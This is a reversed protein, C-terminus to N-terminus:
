ISIDNTKLALSFSYASGITSKEINNIPKSYVFETEVTLSSRFFHSELKALFGKRNNHGYTESNYYAVSTDSQNAFVEGTLKIEMTEKYNHYLSSYLRFGENYTDPAKLNHIFEMGASIAWLDSLVKQFSLNNHLGFFSHKFFSDHGLGSITNGYIRSRNAIDPPLNYYHFVTLTEKIDINFFRDSDLFVSSTFFLPAEQLQLIRDVKETFNSAVATQFLFKLDFGYFSGAHWEGIISPFTKNNTILFPALLFNQEIIGHLFFLNPFAQWQFFFETLNFGSSNDSSDYIFQTYGSRGIIEGKTHILLNDMLRWNLKGLFSVKVLTNISSDSAFRKLEYESSWFAETNKGSSDAKFIKTKIFNNNWNNIQYLKETSNITNEIQEQFINTKDESYSVVSCLLFVM